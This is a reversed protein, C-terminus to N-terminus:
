IHCDRPGTRDVSILGIQSVVSNNEIVGSRVVGGDVVEEPVDTGCRAM